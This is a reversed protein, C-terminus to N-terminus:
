QNDIHGEHVIRKKKNRSKKSIKIKGNERKEEEEKLEMHHFRHKSTVCVTVALIKGVESIVVM